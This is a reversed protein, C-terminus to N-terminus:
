YNLTYFVYHINYIYSHAFLINQLCNYTDFILVITYKLRNLHIPHSSFWKWIHPSESCLRVDKSPSVHLFLSYQISYITNNAKNTDFQHIFWRYVFVLSYQCKCVAIILLCVDICLWRYKFLWVYCANYKHVIFPM